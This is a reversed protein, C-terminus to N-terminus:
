CNCIRFIHRKYTNFDILLVEKELTKCVNMVSDTNDHVTHGCDPIDGEIARILTPIITKWNDVM